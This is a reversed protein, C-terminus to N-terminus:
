NPLPPSLAIRQSLDTGLVTTSLGSMMFNAMTAESMGRSDALWKGGFNDMLIQKLQLNGPTDEDRFIELMTELLKSTYGSAAGLGGLMALSGLAVLGGVQGARGRLGGLMGVQNEFLQGPIGFFPSVLAGVTGRTYSPRNIKAPSGFVDQVLYTAIARVDDLQPNFRRHMVFGPEKNLTALSREVQSPNNYLSKIAAAYTGLRGARETTSMMWAGAGQFQNYFSGLNKRLQSADRSISAAADYKAEDPLSANLVFTDEQVGKVIYDLADKSTFMGGMSKRILKPTFNLNDASGKGRVIDPTETVLDKLLLNVYKFSDKITSVTQHVPIGVSAFNMPVANLLPVLQIAATSPTWGLAWNYQFRRIFPADKVPDMGYDLEQLLRKYKRGSGSSEGADQAYASRTLTILDGYTAQAGAQSMSSFFSNLVRLADESAGDIHRAKLLHKSMGQSRVYSMVDDSMNDPNILAQQDPTLKADKLLGLTRQAM